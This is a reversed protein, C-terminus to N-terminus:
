FTTALKGEKTSYKNSAAAANVGHAARKRPALRGNLVYFPSNNIIGVIDGTRAVLNLAAGEYFDQKTIPM